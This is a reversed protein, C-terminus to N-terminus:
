PLDFDPDVAAVTGQFANAADAAGQPVCAPLGTFQDNGDTVQLVNPNGACAPSGDSGPGIAGGFNQYSNAFHVTPDGGGFVGYGLSLQTSGWKSTPLDYTFGLRPQVLDLGDFSTTNSFGYRLFYDPNDIPIDSTDYEDYRVGVIVTLADNM